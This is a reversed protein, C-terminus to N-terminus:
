MWHSQIIMTTRTHAIQQVAFRARFKKCLDMEYQQKCPRIRRRRKQITQEGNRRQQQVNAQFGQTTLTTTKGKPKGISPLLILQRKAEAHSAGIGKANTTTTKSSQQLEV